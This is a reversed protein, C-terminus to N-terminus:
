KVFQYNRRSKALEDKDNTADCSECSLHHLFVRAFTRHSDTNRHVVIADLGIAVTVVSLVSSIEVSKLFKLELAQVICRTFNRPIVRFSMMNKRIRKNSTAAIRM